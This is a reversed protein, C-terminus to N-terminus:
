PRSFFFKSDTNEWMNNPYDSQTACKEPVVGAYSTGTTANSAGCTAEEGGGLFRLADLEYETLEIKPCRATSLLVFRDLMNSSSAEEGLIQEVDDMPMDVAAVGLFLPPSVSRDYVPTSVSTGMKGGSHFEYPEVWSVFDDNDGEGLGLAYLKYYSSMEDVLDDAFDDVLTWIGDTNCAISKTVTHDALDGLSFTFITTKRNFNTALQGTRDNVLNIVDDEGPGQTIQGDTMFLLAINCGTTQEARITKDIADFAKDFADYFNTAGEAELGDIADILLKKNEKTARILSTQGGILSAVDSFKVIAVRDAVTLTDVITSSAEKALKIRGYDEMSGSVDLVLVVDKPGSSAAVYWPRRRPDYM